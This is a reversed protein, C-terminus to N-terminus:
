RCMPRLPRSAPTQALHWPALPPTWEPYTALRDCLVALTWDSVNGPCRKGYPEGAFLSAPIQVTELGWPSEKHELIDRVSCEQSSVNKDYFGFRVIWLKLNRKLLKLSSCHKSQYDYALQQISVSRLHIFSYHIFKAVHRARFRESKNILWYSPPWLYCCIVDVGAGHNALTVRPSNCRWADGGAGVARAM